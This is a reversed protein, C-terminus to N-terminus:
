DLTAGKSYSRTAKERPHLNFKETDFRLMLLSLPSILFFTWEQNVLLLNHRPLARHLQPLPVFGKNQNMTRSQCRRGPPRWALLALGHWLLGEFKLWILCLISSCDSELSQEVIWKEDSRIAIISITFLRYPFFFVEVGHNCIVWFWM